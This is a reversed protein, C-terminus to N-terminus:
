APRRFRLAEKDIIESVSTELLWHERFTRALSGDSALWDYDGVVMQSSDVILHTHTLEPVSSVTLAAFQSQLSRLRDLARDLIKGGSTLKIADPGLEIHVEVHQKLLQTLASLFNDNVIIPSIGRSTVVLRSKANKLADVLKSPLSYIRPLVVDGSTEDQRGPLTLRGSNGLKRTTTSGPKARMLRRRSVSRLQAAETDITGLNRLAPRKMGGNDVFASTHQELPRGDVLFAVHALGKEGKYALATAPVFRLPARRVDRISILRDLHKDPRMGALVQWVDNVEFDRASPREGFPAIEMSHGADVLQRPTLLQERRWSYPRRLLGDYPVFWTAEACIMEGYISLLEDGALTLQLGEEDGRVAGSRLLDALAVRVVAPTLGLLGTLDEFRTVGANILRLSYEAILHLERKEETLVDIHAVYVPLGVRKYDVLKLGPLNDHIELAADGSM